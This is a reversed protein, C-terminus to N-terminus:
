CGKGLSVQGEEHVTIPAMINSFNCILRRYFTVLELFCEVQIVSQPTHFDRIARVKEEDFHIENESIMHRLFLLKSSMFSHKKPERVAQEKALM